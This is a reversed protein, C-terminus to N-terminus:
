NSTPAVVWEDESDSAWVLAPVGTDDAVQQALRLARGLDDIGGCNNIGHGDDISYTTTM